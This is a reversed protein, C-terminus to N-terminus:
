LDGGASCAPAPYAERGQGAANPVPGGGNRTFHKGCFGCTYTRDIFEWGHNRTKAECTMRHERYCGCHPCYQRVDARVTGSPAALTTTETM